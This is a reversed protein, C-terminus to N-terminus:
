NDFSISHKDRKITFNTPMLIIGGKVKMPLLKGKFTAGIYFSNFTITEKVNDPCGALKIDNKHTRKNNIKQPIWGFYAKQRLYIAKSYQKELKWKGLESDDVLKPSLEHDLLHVSDTDCYVFYDINKDIVDFLQKRAYATIFSAIATYIPDGITDEGTDYTVTGTVGDIYPEKNRTRPNMGFKGYLSNLLIKNLQREAGKTKTKQEYIPLIFERFLNKSGMFMYGDLYDIDHIDYHTKLLELDINTLTLEIAGCDEASTDTLYNSGTFTFDDQLLIPPQMGEKLKCNVRVRQIYLPYSPDKKYKGKYYVPYSYPLLANCMQNPYMSNVDYVNVKQKIVKERYKDRVQCVGGRYSDRIFDDVELPLIPYLSNFKSGCFEKYLSFTDGASTIHAMGKAYQMNLVRAIIETDKEIYELEKQTPTYDIPRYKRYNISGKSIPLNYSKAIEKVTGHVKRVSDRFEIIKQPKHNKRGDDFCVKITYMNGRRDILSQFTHTKVKKKKNYKWKHTLMYSLIFDGDFGSLNHFYITAKGLKEIDKFFQEMTTGKSIHNLSGIECLDYLWISTERRAIDYGSARTEFDGVLM